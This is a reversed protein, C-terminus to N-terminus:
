SSTVGIWPQRNGISSIRKVPLKGRAVRKKKCQQIYTQAAASSVRTGICVCLQGIYRSIYQPQKDDEGCVVGQRRYLRLQQQENRGKPPSM